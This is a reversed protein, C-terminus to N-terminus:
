RKLDAFRRPVKAVEAARERTVARAPKDRRLGQFSPHRIRGDHTWETFTVEAVLRPQVSHARRQLAAPLPSTFPPTRREIADLRRRLDRAVAVSFGTGVKGAFVLSGAEDYYGILLAGIGQRSGEPDTFGGIVFEQRLACKTKIWTDGRGAVYPATRRKSIIGELRLRCARAFLEPGHGVVHDALQILSATRTKGILGALAAKRRELPQRRLDAGDLSLLDFVFYRLGRTSGGGFANQLAQFSTRGDPLVVAVEGDLIANRTGLAAAAEAVAPFASSWDKGTRTVLTVSPGHIRCGVRYGDYKMEHLWDDGEPAQKVLRALQPRYFSSPM